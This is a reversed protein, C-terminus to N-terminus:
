IQGSPVSKRVRSQASVVPLSPSTLGMRALCHTFRVDGRLSDWQPAVALHVLCPDHSEIARGLHLFAADMDEEEAHLLALQMAPFAQPQSSARELALKRMGAQGEGAYIEKLRELLATPAGHLEAHRINEAFFRESDGKKWYAGALHEHAHPHRPDLELTKNAWEIADDYRRQHWYSMSIQLHVLPSFPDRELAKWKMRLGQELNGLAELLQGYVLYAESHNPNLQLARKLSREAGAWNWESFFLVAGLAVQADASTDDMALARLAAARAEQFAEAPAVVRLAAQTCCALALGAHAPAYTPDLEIAARFAEVAKPLEFVSYSLLYLRGRGVLEYVAPHAVPQPAGVERASERSNWGLHAAVCEAVVDTLSLLETVPEDFKGSWLHAGDECRILRVNIGVRDSTGYFHVDIVADVRLSRGITAPDDAAGFYAHVARTPRVIIQEFRGLRDILADAIALGTERDRGPLVEGTFPRAPLVAISRRMGARPREEVNLRRVAAAFRYGARPVTEISRREAEADLVKRLASIHVALIGEEVFSGPWVLELLDRKTTLRGARRVLTVLVDHAKPELAITQGGRSLRRESADLTFGGFEYIEQAM